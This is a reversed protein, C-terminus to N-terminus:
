NWGPNQFNIGTLKKLRIVEDGPIPLRLYKDSYAKRNNDVAFRTYKITGGLNEAKMGTVVKDT